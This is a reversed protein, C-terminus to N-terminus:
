TCLRSYLCVSKHSNHLREVHDVLVTGPGSAM